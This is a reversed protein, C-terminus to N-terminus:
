DEKLSLNIRLLAALIDRNTKDLAAVKADLHKLNDEILQSQLNLLRDLDKETVLDKHGDTIHDTLANEVRDLREEISERLGRLEARNRQAEEIYGGERRAARTGNYYLAALFVLMPPVSAIM